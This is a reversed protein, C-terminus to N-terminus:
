LSAGGGSGRGFLPQPSSTPYALFAAERLSAGGERERGFLLQPSPTPYALSAAERLSAGGERERGFLLQPSPAPYALSAAERLSAGGERERGFLLQSYVQSKKQLNAGMRTPHPRLYLQSQDRRSISGGRGHPARPISHVAASLLHNIFIFHCSKTETAKTDNLISKKVKRCRM